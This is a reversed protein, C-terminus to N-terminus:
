ELRRRVEAVIGPVAARVMQMVEAFQTDHLGYPDPIDQDLADPDFSRFLVVREDGGMARLAAVHSRDAALVRDVEGLQARTIQAAVHETPYGFRALVRRTGEHAPRGVHWDGTGASTVVVRDGLGADALAQRLVIAAMPSRCINGTCVVSIRFPQTGSGSVAGSSDGGGPGPPFEDPQVAVM